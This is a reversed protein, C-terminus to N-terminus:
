NGQKFRARYDRQRSRRRAAAKIFYKRKLEESVDADSIWQASNDSFKVLFELKGATLRKRIIHKAPWWEPESVHTETGTQPSRQSAGVASQKESQTDTEDPGKQQDIKLPPHVKDFM